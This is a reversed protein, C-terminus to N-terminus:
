QIIVIRETGVVVGENFVTCFYVGESLNSLNLHILTEEQQKRSSFVIRGTLDVIQILTGYGADDFKITFSGNNLNPYLKIDNRLEQKREQQIVSNAIRSSVVEELQPYRHYTTDGRLARAALAYNQIISKERSLAELKEIQISGTHFTLKKM